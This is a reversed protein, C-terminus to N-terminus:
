LFYPFVKLWYFYIPASVIALRHAIRCHSWSERAGSFLFLPEVRAFVQMKIGNEASLAVLINLIFRREVYELWLTTVPIYVGSAAPCAFGHKWIAAVIHNSIEAWSRTPTQKWRTTGFQTCGGGGNHHSENLKNKTPTLMQWHWGSSGRLRCLPPTVHTVRTVGV